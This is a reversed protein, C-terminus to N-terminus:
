YNAPKRLARINSMYAQAVRSAAGVVWPPPLLQQITCADFPRPSPSFSLSSSSSYFLLWSPKPMSAERIMVFQKPILLICYFDFPESSTM